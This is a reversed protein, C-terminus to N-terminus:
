NVFVEDVFFWGKDGKGPHWAPLPNVPQAKLRLVKITKEPFNVQFATLKGPETNQPQTPITTGLLEFIKGDASGWVELKKPPMIYSGVEVISGFTVSKVPVPKDFFLNADMMNDKYGLWRGSKFNKESQLSDMLTLAGRGAYNESPPLLLEAKAPVYLRKYFTAEVTRSGIWGQKFARTKLTLSKSIVVGSDYRPSSISDPESGDLTYRIDAGKVVHKLRLPIPEQLIFHKHEIIPANITLVVMEVDRGYQLSIAPFKKGLAAFDAEALGTNGVSIAKLAKMQQLWNLDAPKLAIGNVSLKSLHKLSSLSSLSAGPLDTQNLHLVQLNKMKTIVELAEPQIPMGTLNLEAVSAYVPELDTLSANTFTHRNFFRVSLGNEGAALPQVLRNPNNLEAIESGSAAPYAVAMLSQQKPQFHQVAWQRLWNSDPLNIFKQTFSAGAKIWEALLTIEEATPQVKGKPPMHEEDELPLHLRKLMLSVDPNATDWLAGSEGGKMLGAVTSMLLGGKTKAENHCGVCRADLVPQIGHEFVLAEALAPLGKQEPKRLPEWVFDAGHTISAGGHGTLTVGVVSVICIAYVWKKSGLWSGSTHYVLLSFWSLLLGAIRHNNISEDYGAETGLWLGTIATLPTTIALVEMLRIGISKYVNAELSKFFVLWAALLVWVTAPFHLLLPHMRGGSQLFAPLSLREHFIFWLTLLVNLVWAAQLIGASPQIRYKNM